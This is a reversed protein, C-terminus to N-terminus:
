GVPGARDLGERFVEGRRADALGDAGRAADHSRGLDRWMEVCAEFAESVARADGDATACARRITRRRDGSASLPDPIAAGRELRTAAPRRKTLAWAMSLGAIGAGAVVARM